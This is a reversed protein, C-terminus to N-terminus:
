TVFPTSVIWDTYPQQSSGSSAASSTIGDDPVGVTVDVVGAFPAVPTGVETAGVAVKEVAISAVVMM